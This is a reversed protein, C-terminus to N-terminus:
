ADFRSLTWLAIALTIPFAIHGGQHLWLERGTLRPSETMSRKESVSLLLSTAPFDASKEQRVQRSFAKRNKPLGPFLPVRECYNKFADGFRKRLLDEESLALLLYLLIVPLLLTVSLIWPLQAFLALSLATILNAFYLPHRMWAYPGHQVLLPAEMAAGNVHAGAHAAAWIRLAQAAVLPLLAWPAISGQFWFKMTLLALAFFGM